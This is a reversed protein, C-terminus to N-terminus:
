DGLHEGTLCLEHDSLVEVIRCDAVKDGACQTIMRKLEKKMSQLRKIRSDVERLHERAIADVEECSHNPDDTMALIQRIQDLSFGLERSHRIFALRNRHDQRYFRQNGETREPIPLLGIEEYYRITQVKCNGAKAMQGISFKEPM